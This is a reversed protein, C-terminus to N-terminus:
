ASRREACRGDSARHLAPVDIVHKVNDDLGRLAHGLSEFDALQHGDPLEGHWLLYAEEFSCNAALEQV